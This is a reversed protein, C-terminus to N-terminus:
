AAGGIMGARDAAARLKALVAWRIERVRERSLGFSEAIERDRVGKMRRALIERDRDSLGSLVGELWRLDDAHEAAESPGPVQSPAVDFEADCRGWTAARVKKAATIAHRARARKEGEYWLYEPIRITPVRGRIFRGSYARMWRWAVTSFQVDRAPDFVTAAHMIGIYAESVIDDYYPRGRFRRAYLGALSRNDEVMQRQKDTLRIMPDGGAARRVHARIGRVQRM